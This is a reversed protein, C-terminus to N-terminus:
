VAALQAAERFHGKLLADTTSSHVMAQPWSRIRAGIRAAVRPPKACM